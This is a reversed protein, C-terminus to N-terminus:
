YNYYDKLYDALGKFDPYVSYKNIGFQRLMNKLKPILELPIDIRTLCSDCTAEMKSENKGHITFLGRQAFLRVNSRNPYIAFPLEKIVISLDFCVQAYTSHYEEMDEEPNLLASDGIAVSNLKNPNLM